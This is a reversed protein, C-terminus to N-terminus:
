LKAAARKTQARAHYMIYLVIAKFCFIWECQTSKYNLQPLVRSGTVFMRNTGELRRRESGPVDTHGKGGKPRRESRNSEM